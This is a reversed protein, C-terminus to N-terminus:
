RDRDERLLVAGTVATKMRDYLAEATAGRFAEFAALHCRLVARLDQCRPPTEFRLQFRQGGRPRISRLHDTVATYGGSFGTESGFVSHSRRM